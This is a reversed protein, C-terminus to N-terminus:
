RKQNPARRTGNVIIRCAARLVRRLGAPKQAVLVFNHESLPIGYADISSDYTKAVRFGARRVSRLLGNRSFRRFELTMGNGGHFCLPEFREIAGDRCRNILARHDGEGTITWYNLGTFHEDTAPELTTPVTLIAVGGPKLLRFMNEFAREVPPEVHELVDTCTIFDISDPQWRSWDVNCLDLQPQRDYFTNQYDFKEALLKAYNWDSCGIGRIEKRPEMQKLVSEEPSFHDTVAHMMARLRGYSRCQPCHGDERTLRDRPLRHEMGCINCRFPVMEPQPSATEERPAHPTCQQQAWKAQYVKRNREVIAHHTERSLLRFSASHWHHVFADRAFRLEYGRDRVRRCYDDDEFYGVGFSEDLEGVQEFVVRSMAVCFFGVM